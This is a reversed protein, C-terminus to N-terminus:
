AQLILSSLVVSTIYQMRLPLEQLGACLPFSSLQKETSKTHVSLRLKDKMCQMYQATIDHMGASGIASTHAAEPM